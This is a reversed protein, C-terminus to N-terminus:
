SNKNARAKEHREKLKAHEAAIREKAQEVIYAHTEERTYLPQGCKRCYHDRGGVSRGCTPCRLETKRSILDAKLNMRIPEKHTDLEVLPEIKIQASHMKSQYIEGIDVLYEANPAPEIDLKIEYDETANDDLEDIIKRFEKLNM